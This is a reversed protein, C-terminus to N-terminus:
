PHPAVGAAQGRKVALFWAATEALGDQMSVPPTWELLTRAKSSDVVLSDLLRSVVAEMGMKRAAMRMVVAPLPLFHAKMGLARAIRRALERTSVDEGDSILFTEGAAKEHEVCRVLFDALNEVGILSRHNKTEPLPLPFGMAVLKMLSFFNARVGPGYVLTSRVVVAQMGTEAAVAWLAKEAEWKSAGYPGKPAPPDAETFARDPTSAGNVKISSILVMRKVGADAAARALASAGHACAMRSAEESANELTGHVRAALHIVADVNEFAGQLHSTVGPDGIEVWEQVSPVASKLKEWRVARSMAARVVFGAETLRRCVVRGVFGEAGTVLVRKGKVRDM